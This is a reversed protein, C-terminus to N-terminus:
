WDRSICCNLPGPAVSSMQAVMGITVDISVVYSLHSFFTQDIIKFFIHSGYLIFPSYIYSLGRWINNNFM